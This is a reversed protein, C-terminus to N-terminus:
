PDSSARTSFSLPIFALTLLHGFGLPKESGFRGSQDRNLRKANGTWHSLEHFATRYYNIQDRFAPQPPVAVFDPGPAYYAKADCGM